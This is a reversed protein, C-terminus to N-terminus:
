CRRFKARRPRAPPHDLPSPPLSPCQAAGPRSHWEGPRNTEEEVSEAPVQPKHLRQDGDDIEAALLDDNCPVLFDKDELGGMSFGPPANTITELEDMHLDFWFVM